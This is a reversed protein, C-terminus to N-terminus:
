SFGRMKYAPNKGGIKASDNILKAKSKNGDFFKAFNQDEEMRRSRLTSELDRKKKRGLTGSFSGKKSNSVCIPLLKRVM